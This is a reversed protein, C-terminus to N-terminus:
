IQASELTRLLQLMHAQVLQSSSQLAKDIAALIGLHYVDSIGVELKLFIRTLSGCLVCIRRYSGM